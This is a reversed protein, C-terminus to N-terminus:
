PGTQSAGADFVRQGGIYVALVRARLDLPDASFVVVDAQRGPQLVGIRDGVGLLEAPVATIARRAAAASLGERVAVAAGIRLSDPATQPLGGALAVPVGHREFQGAAGGARPGALPDLPGVIVATLQGAAAEAVLRADLTHSVALRLKYENIFELAASVDAGSPATLIGPLRGQAFAKLPSDDTAPAARAATLTSRLLGLAGSRSTPERDAKFVEPALSLKLPGADTLVRPRGGPGATQCVAIHGGVLNQDDPVLAFTTVGAALARRLQWACRDFAARSNLRPQVASQRECLDGLASLTAQCDILGPCLVAGPFSDVAVGPPAAGGVQLIKEGGIVLLADAALEGDANVWQAGALVRVAAPPDDAWAPAVVAVLLALGNLWARRRRVSM